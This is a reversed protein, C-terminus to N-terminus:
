NSWPPVTNESLVQALLIVSTHPSTDAVTPRCGRAIMRGPLRQHLQGRCISVPRSERSAVSFKPRSQLIRVLNETLLFSFVNALGWSSAEDFRAIVDSGDITRFSSGVSNKPTKCCGQKWTPLSLNNHRQAGDFFRLLEDLSLGPSDCLQLRFQSFAPFFGRSVDRDPFFRSLSRTNM